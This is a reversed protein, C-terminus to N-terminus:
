HVAIRQILEFLVGERVAGKSLQMQEISFMQFIAILVSLGGALINQRDARLGPLSIANVQHMKVLDQQLQRLNPLTLADGRKTFISNIAQVTGSTGLCISWGLSSYQQAVAQLCQKAASIANAFNADTMLDDAFFQQQFSVCGMELSALALIKSDEGIILETSGGGIDIILHRKILERGCSAGVYILRAEEEGSIIRIPHGLVEHAQQLFQDLGKAIRLTYTGVIDVHQVQHDLILKSFREFCKLARQQSDLDLEGNQQLGARLQVKQKQRAIVKHQRRDNVEVIMMHFSNSGLDITALRLAMDTQM